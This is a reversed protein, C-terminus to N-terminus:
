KKLQNKLQTKIRHIKVRVNPETIGIVKAIEKMSIGELMLSIMAKEIVSLTNIANQLDEIQKENNILDDIHNDEIIDGLNETDTNVYIQSQKISKTVYSISVNVAIRYIWTSVKADGRFNDISKWINTLIEQYMDQQEAINSNYYRCIRQIRESNESVIKNFKEEKM